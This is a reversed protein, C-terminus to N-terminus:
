FDVKSFDLVELKGTNMGYIPVKCPTPIHGLSVQFDTQAQFTGSNIIVTGNYNEAYGNKHVHGFHFIDPTSDLTMYDRPEPVLSDDGYRPCLHHQNLMEMAVKQPNEYGDRLNPNNSIWGDMSTGHYVLLSLGEVKHTSPNGVFHINEADDVFKVFELPLAPQPDAVRVADHNGPAVIVEVHEPIAKLFGCFIEYQAFIDKTVLEREQNPYVGIGDVLDGAISIYKIDEAIEREQETTKGNLFELFREFSKQMFWRSGVHLDSLFVIKAPRNCFQRNRAQLLKGPTTFGKAILLSNSMYAEFTLVEDELIGSAQAMIPSDKPILIPIMTEEDEIELLMHGNKTIKKSYVMGIVNFTKKQRNQAERLKVTDHSSSIMRLQHSLRSFRDNFYDVFDKVKGKCRSHDTVDSNEISLMLDKELTAARPVGSAWEGQKIAGTPEVQKLARSVSEQWLAIAKEDLMFMSHRIMYERLKLADEYAKESLCLQSLVKPSVMMKQSLFLEAVQKKRLMEPQVKAAEVNAM